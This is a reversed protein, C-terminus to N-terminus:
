NMALHEATALFLLFRFATEVDVKYALANRELFGGSLVMFLSHMWPALNIIAVEEQGASSIKNYIDEAVYDPFVRNEKVVEPMKAWCNEIHAVETAIKPATLFDMNIGKDEFEKNIKNFM